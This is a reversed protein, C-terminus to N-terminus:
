KQEFGDNLDPHVGTQMYIVWEAINTAHDAMREVYKTIFMLDVERMVNQPNKSITECVLLVIKSFMGDVADDDKCIERAAAEDRSIFCDMARTFMSRALHLMQIVHNLILSNRGIEGISIIDCIDACQDAVREIDTIIKLCAAVDRLDSAIPQQLAILNMCIQEIQHEQQNIEADAHVVADAKEKDLTRLAEITQSIREDAMAGMDTMRRRLDSLKQDYYKRPM